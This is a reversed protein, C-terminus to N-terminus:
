EGKVKELYERKIEDRVRELCATFIVRRLDRWPESETIAEKVEYIMQDTLSEGIDQGMDIFDQQDVEITIEAKVRM